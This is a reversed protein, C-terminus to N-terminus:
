PKIEVYIPQFNDCGDKSRARLTIRAKGPATIPAALKVEALSDGSRQPTIVPQVKEGNIQLDLTSLDTNGSIQVSFGTLAPVTTNNAPAASTFRPEECSSGGGGGGGGGYALLTPSITMAGLLTMIRMPTAKIPM